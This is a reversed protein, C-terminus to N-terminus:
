TFSFKQNALDAITLGDLLNSSTFVNGNQVTGYYAHRRFHTTQGPYKWKWPGFYFHNNSQSLDLLKKQYKVLIGTPDTADVVFGNPNERRSYTLDDEEWEDTINPPKTSM